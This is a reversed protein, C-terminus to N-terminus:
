FRLTQILGEGAPRRLEEEIAQELDGRLLLDNRQLELHLIRLTASAGHVQCFRPVGHCLKALRRKTAHRLKEQGPWAIWASLNRRATWEVQSPDISEMRCILEAAHLTLRDLLKAAVSADTRATAHEMRFWLLNRSQGAQTLWSLEASRAALSAARSAVARIRWALEEPDCPKTIFDDLGRAFGELLLGRRLVGTLLIVPLSRTVPSSRIQGLVELGTRKPMEHDLVVVQPRTRRIFRFARVADHGTSVVMGTDSLYEAISESHDLDDDVLHVRIPGLSPQATSGTRHPM